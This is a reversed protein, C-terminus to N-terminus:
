LEFHSVVGGPLLSLTPYLLPLDAPARLAARAQRDPFLAWRRAHSPQQPRPAGRKPLHVLEKGAGPVSLADM